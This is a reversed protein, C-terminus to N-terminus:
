YNQLLFVLRGLFLYHGQDESIDDQETQFEWFHSHVYVLSPDVGAEIFKQKMFDSIAIWGKVAHLWGSAHLMKLALAFIASKIVSQQWGGYRVEKWYHGQLSEECLEGNAWLTGSM